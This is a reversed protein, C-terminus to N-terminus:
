NYKAEINVTGTFAVRSQGAPLNLAPVTGTLTYTSKGSGVADLTIDTYTETGSVTRNDTFDSQLAFKQTGGVETLTIDKPAKIQISEGSTGMATLEVESLTVIGGTVPATAYMTNTNTKLELPNTLKADVSITTAVASYSVLSTVLLSLILLTKKM